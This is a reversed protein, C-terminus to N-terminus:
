KDLYELMRVPVLATSGASAVQSMEGWTNTRYGNVDSQSAGIARTGITGDFIETTRGWTKSTSYYRSWQTM